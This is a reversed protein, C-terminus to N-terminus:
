PERGVFARAVLGYVKQTWRAALVTDDSGRWVAKHDANRLIVSDLHGRRLHLQTADQAALQEGRVRVREREGEVSVVRQRKRKM